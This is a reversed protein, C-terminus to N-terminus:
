GAPVPDLLWRWGGEPLPCWVQGTGPDRYTPTGWQSSLLWRWGGDPLECWDQGTGPDRYIRTVWQWAMQALYVSAASLLRSMLFLFVFFRADRAGRSVSGLPFVAFCLM